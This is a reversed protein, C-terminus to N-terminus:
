EVEVVNLFNTSRWWALDCWVQCNVMRLFVYGVVGCGLSMEDCEHYIRMQLVYKGPTVSCYISELLAVATQVSTWSGFVQLM